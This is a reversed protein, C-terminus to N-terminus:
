LAIDNLLDEFLLSNDLVNIDNKAGAVRPYIGDAIYYGKEFRVGNLVFPAVPSHSNDLVNIDNKAGAVRFFAHLIWLDQSAIVELMITPYKKDSRGYQGQWSKPCFKWEWHMCDISGLM